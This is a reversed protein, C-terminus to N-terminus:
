VCEWESFVTMKDFLYIFVNNITIVNNYVFFKLIGDYFRTEEECGRKKILNLFCSFCKLSHLLCESLLNLLWIWSENVSLVSLAVANRQEEALIVLVDLEWITESHCIVSHDIFVVGMWTTVYVGVEMEFGMM